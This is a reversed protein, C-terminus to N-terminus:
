RIVAVTRSRVAMNTPACSQHASFHLEVAFIRARLAIGALRFRGAHRSSTSRLFRGQDRELDDHTAEAPVQSVGEIYPVRHASILPWNGSELPMDIGEWGRRTSGKRGSHGLQLAIKADSNTICLISLGSGHRHMQKENWIGPCAPTIRGEPSVCTM